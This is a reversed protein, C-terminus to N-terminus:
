CPLMKLEVGLAAAAQEAYKPGCIIVPSAATQSALSEFATKLENKEASILRQLKRKRYDDEIGYLYRLFDTLGKEASTRPKTEKSYCGIIIKVLDSDSLAPNGKNLISSFTELSRL